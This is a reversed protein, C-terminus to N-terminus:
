FKVRLLLNVISKCWDNVFEDYDRTTKKKKKDNFSYLLWARTVMSYWMWAPGETKKKLKIVSCPDENHRTKFVNQKTFKYMIIFLNPLLHTIKDAM